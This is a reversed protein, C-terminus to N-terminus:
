QNYQGARLQANKWTRWGEPDLKPDPEGGPRTGTHNLAKRVKTMKVQNALDTVVEQWDRQSTIVSQATSECSSIRKRLSDSARAANRAVSLCALVCIASVTASLACFIALWM